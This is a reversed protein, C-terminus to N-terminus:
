TRNNDLVVQLTATTCVPKGDVTVTVTRVDASSYYNLSLCGRVDDRNPSPMRVHEAM